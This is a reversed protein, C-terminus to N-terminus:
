KVRIDGFITISAREQGGKHLGKQVSIKQSPKKTYNKHM